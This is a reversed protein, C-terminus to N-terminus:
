DRIGSGRQRSRKRKAERQQRQQRTARTNAVLLLVIANHLSIFVHLVFDWRAKGRTAGRLQVRGWPLSETM